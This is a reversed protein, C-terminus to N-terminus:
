SKKRRPKKKGYLRKDCESVMQLESRRFADLFRKMDEPATAIIQEIASVKGLAARRVTQLFDPDVPLPEALRDEFVRQM